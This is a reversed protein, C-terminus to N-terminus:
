ILVTSKLVRREPLLLASLRGHRSGPTNLLIRKKSMIVEGFIEQSCAMPVFPSGPATSIWMPSKQSKDFPLANNQKLPESWKKLRQYKTLYSFYLLSLVQSVRVRSVGIKRALDLQNKGKDTEIM